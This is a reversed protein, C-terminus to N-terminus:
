ESYITLKLIDLNM